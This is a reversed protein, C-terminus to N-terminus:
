EVRRSWCYVRKTSSRQSELLFSPRAHHHPSHVYLITPTSFMQPGATAAVAFSRDCFARWGVGSVAAREAAELATAYAAADEGEGLEATEGREFAEREAAELAAAEVVAQERARKADEAARTTLTSIPRHAPLDTPKCAAAGEDVYRAKKWDDVMTDHIKHGTARDWLTEGHRWDEKWLEITPRADEEEEAVVADVGTFLVGNHVFLGDRYICALACAADSMQQAAAKTFLDIAAHLEEERERTRREAVQAKTLAMTPQLEFDVDDVRRRGQLKVMGVRLQAEPHGLSAAMVLLEWARADLATDEVIDDEALGLSAGQEYAADEALEYAESPSLQKKSRQRSLSLGFLRGPSKSRGM